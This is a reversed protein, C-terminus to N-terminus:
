MNLDTSEEPIKLIGVTDENWDHDTVRDELEKLFGFLGSPICNYLEEQLPPIAKVYMKRGETTLYDIMGQHAQPPMLAFAM